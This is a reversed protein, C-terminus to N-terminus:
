ATVEQLKPVALILAAVSLWIVTASPSLRLLSEHASVSGLAGGLVGAAALHTVTTQQQDNSDTSDGHEVAHTM